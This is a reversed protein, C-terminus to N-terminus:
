EGPLCGNSKSFRLIILFLFGLALSGYLPISFYANAEFSFIVAQMSYVVMFIETIIERSKIEFSGKEPNAYNENDMKLPYKHNGAFATKRGPFGNWAGKSNNFSMGIKLLLQFPVIFLGSIIERKGNVGIFLQFLCYQFLFMLFLAFDFYTILTWNYHSKIIVAPFSLIALIFIFLDSFGMRFQFYSEVKAKLPIPSFLIRLFLKRFNESNGKAVRYQREKYSDIKQPLLCKVESEPLYVFQWKRLRARLSIDMNESVTDMEWGGADKIAKKRWVVATGNSRSFLGTDNRASEEILFFGANDSGQIRTLLSAKENHYRQGHQVVGVKESNFYGVSDMLFSRGPRFDGRFIAILDGQASKLGNFLAGAKNGVRIDRHILSIDFGKARYKDVLETCIEFTEDNSDDLIQISLKDKPYDLSL